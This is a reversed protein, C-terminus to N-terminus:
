LVRAAAYEQKRRRATDCLSDATQVFKDPLFSVNKPDSLDQEELWEAFVRKIEDASFEKLVETLRIRQKDQFAIIGGSAYTLERALANAEPLIPGNNPRPPEQPQETYPPAANRMDAGKDKSKDSLPPSLNKDPTGHEERVVGNETSLACCEISLATCDATCDATRDATRGAPSDCRRLVNTVNCFVDKADREVRVTFRLGIADRPQDVDALNRFKALNTNVEFVRYRKGRRDALPIRYLVVGQPYGDIQFRLPLKLQRGPGFRTPKGVGVLRANYIGAPVSNLPSTSPDAFKFKLAM